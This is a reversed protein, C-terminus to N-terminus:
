SRAAIGLRRSIEVYAAPASMTAGEQGIYDEGCTPEPTRFRDAHDYASQPFPLGAVHGRGSEDPAWRRVISWTHPTSSEEDLLWAAGDHQYQTALGALTTDPEVLFASVSWDGNLGMNAAGVTDALWHRLLADGILTALHRYDGADYFGGTGWSKTSMLTRAVFDFLTAVTGESQLYADVSELGDGHYAWDIDTGSVHNGDPDPTRTADFRALADCFLHATDPCYITIVASGLAGSTVEIM